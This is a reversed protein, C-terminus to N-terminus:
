IHQERVYHGNEVRHVVYKNGINRMGDSLLEIVMRAPLDIGRNELECLYGNIEQPYPRQQDLHNFLYSEEDDSEATNIGPLQRITMFYGQLPRDWGADIVIRSSGQTTTFSHLSM